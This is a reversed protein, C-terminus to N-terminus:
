GQSGGAPREEQNSEVKNTEFFAACAIYVAAKACFPEQHVLGGNPLSYHKRHYARAAVACCRKPTVEGKECADAM